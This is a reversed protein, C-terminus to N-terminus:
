VIVVLNYRNIYDDFMMKSEVEPGKPFIGTIRQVCSQQQLDWIRMAQYFSLSENFQPTVRIFFM